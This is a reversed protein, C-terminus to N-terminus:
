KQLFLFPLRQWSGMAGSSFYFNIYIVKERDIDRGYCPQFFLLQYMDSNRERDRGYCRQFFNFNIYIVRERETDRERVCVYLCVEQTWGPDHIHHLPDPSLAKSLIVLSILCWLHFISYDAEDPYGHWLSNLKEKKM